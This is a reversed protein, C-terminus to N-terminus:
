KLKLEIEKPEKKIIRKKPFKIELIGSKENYNLKINKSNKYDVNEPLKIIRSFQKSSFSKSKYIYEKNKDSTKEVERTKKSKAKVHLYGANDIKISIDNKKYGPIKFEIGWENGSKTEFINIEKLNTEEHFNDVFNDFITDINKRTKKLNEFFHEMLKSSKKSFYDWDAQLKSKQKKANLNSFLIIVFLISIFKKNM